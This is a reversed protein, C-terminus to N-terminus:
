ASRRARPPSTECALSAGFTALRQRFPLDHGDEIPGARWFVRGHELLNLSPVLVELNAQGVADGGEGTRHREDIDMGDDEGDPHDEQLIIRPGLQREDDRQFRDEQGGEYHDALIPRCRELLGLGVVVEDLLFLLELGVGRQGALGLRQYSLDVFVHETMGGCIRGRVVPLSGVAPCDGTPQRNQAADPTPPARPWALLAREGAIKGTSFTPLPSQLPMTDLQARRANGLQQEAEAAAREALGAVTRLLTTEAAKALLAENCGDVAASGCRTTLKMLTTPHPVRGDIPIRCFRRWAISDAVERCLTEYGLRYRFKLFMLRLYVEM